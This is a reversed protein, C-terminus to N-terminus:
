PVIVTLLIRLWYGLFVGGAAGAGFLTLAELLLQRM